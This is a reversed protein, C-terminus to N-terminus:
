DKGPKISILTKNHSLERQELLEKNLFYNLFHSIAENNFVPISESLM